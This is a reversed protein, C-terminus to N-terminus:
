VEVRRADLGHNVDVEVPLNAGVRPLGSAHVLVGEGEPLVTYYLHYRTRRLLVRRTGEPERAEYPIGSLPTAELRRLTTELEQWFLDPSDRRNAVWWADVEAIQELASATFEIREFTM